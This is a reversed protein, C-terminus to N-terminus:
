FKSKDDNDLKIGYSAGLDLLRDDIAEQKDQWNKDKVFMLCARLFYIDHIIILQDKINSLHQRCFQEAKQQTTSDIIM